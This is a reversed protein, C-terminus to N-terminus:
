LEQVKWSNETKVTAEEFFTDFLKKDGIRNLLWDKSVLVYPANSFHSSIQAPSLKYFGARKAKNRSGKPRGTSKLNSM